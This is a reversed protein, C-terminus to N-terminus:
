SARLSDRVQRARDGVGRIKSDFVPQDARGTRFLADAADTPAM